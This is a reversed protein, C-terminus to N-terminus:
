QDLEVIDQFDQRAGGNGDVTHHHRTRRGAVFGHDGTFRHGHVFGDACRDVSAGDVVVTLFLSNNLQQAINNHALNNNANSNPSTTPKVKPGPYNRLTNGIKQENRARTPARM